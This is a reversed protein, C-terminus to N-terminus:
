RVAPRIFRGQEPGLEFREHRPASCARDNCLQWGVEGAVPVDDSVPVRLKLAGEILWSVSGGRETRVGPPIDAVTGDDLRLTVPISTTEKAGYLHFGPSLVIDLVLDGEERVLALTAAGDWDPSRVGPGAPPEGPSTGTAIWDLTLGPDARERFDPNGYRLLEGGGPELVLTTAQPLEARSPDAPIGLRQYVAPTVSAVDLEDFGRREVVRALVDPPDPSLVVLRAGLARVRPLAEQWARVQAICYKSWDLSRVSEVIVIQEPESLAIV